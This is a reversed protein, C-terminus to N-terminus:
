DDSLTKLSSALIKSTKHNNYFETRFIRMYLLDHFRGGFFCEKELIGERKFGLRENLRIAVVNDAFVHASIKLLNLEKFAFDIIMVATIAGYGAYRFEKAICGSLTAHRSRHSIATLDAIGIPTRDPKEIIFDIRTADETRVMEARQLFSRLQAKTYFREEPSFLGVFDPSQYWRYVLDLDSEEVKRICM